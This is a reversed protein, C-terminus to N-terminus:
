AAEEDGPSADREALLGNLFELLEAKATPVETQEITVDKKKVGQAEMLEDRAERALAATSAYRTALAADGAWATVKHARM